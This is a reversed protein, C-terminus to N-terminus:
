EEAHAAELSALVDIVQTIDFPKALFQIGRTTFQEVFAPTLVAQSSGSMVTYHHRALAPFTDLSALIDEGTLHPMRLDLLVLHPESVTSLLQMAEDGSRAEEVHYGEDELVERLSWRITEDDDVIIVPLHM